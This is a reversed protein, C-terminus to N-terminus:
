RPRGFNSGRSDPCDAETACRERYHGLLMGLTVRRSTRNCDELNINRYPRFYRDRVAMVAVLFRDVADLAYESPRDLSSCAINTQVLHETNRAARDVAEVVIIGDIRFYERDHSGTDEARVVEHFRRPRGRHLRGM